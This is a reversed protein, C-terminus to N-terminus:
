KLPVRSHHWSNDEEAVQGGITRRMIVPEQRGPIPKEIRIITDQQREPDSAPNILGCRPLAELRHPHHLMAPEVQIELTLNCTPPAPDLAHRLSDPRGSRDCIFRDGSLDSPFPPRRDDKFPPFGSRIAPPELDIGRM